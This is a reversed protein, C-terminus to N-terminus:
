TEEATVGVWGYPLKRGDGTDCVTRSKGASKWEKSRSLTRRMGEVSLAEFHSFRGLRLVLGREKASEFHRDLNQTYLEPFRQREDKYRLDYHWNCLACLTKWDRIRTSFAPMKQNWFRECELVLYCQFNAPVSGDSVSLLREHHMQIKEGQYSREGTMLHSRDVRVADPAVSGDSLKILRFPDSALNNSDYEFVEEEFRKAKEALAKSDTGCQAFKDSWGNWWDRNEYLRQVARASLLATRIAGKIASGPIVARGTVENWLLPRVEGRRTDLSEIVGTLERRSAAGIQIAYVWTEPRRAAEERLLKLAPQIGSEGASLLTLYRGRKDPAMLRLVLSPRFRILKMDKLLYDEAAISEGSGVHVPTLPTVTLKYVPM